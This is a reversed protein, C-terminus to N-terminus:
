RGFAEVFPLGIAIRDANYRALMQRHMFLFMEGRRSCFFLTVM